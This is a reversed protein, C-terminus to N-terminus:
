PGQNVRIMGLPYWGDEGRGEIALRVAPQLTTPDLIGVSLQYDGASLDGPAFVPDEFVADGPLWKRLDADTRIVTFHDPSSLRFALVFPRYIPAVGENVWWTKLHLAEGARIQDQWEARRLAFRYGMKRQFDDFETKWTKPIASSKVNVTSVHWRLAEGLIYRVGWGARFWSEPVGCTELSVPATRWVDQIGTEAIEEPYQDLMESEPKKMDGLCDLRWGAGHSTGYVLADPQDFNMLLPTKRFAKLYVDILKKQVPFEPMYDSWGEGWYGVTSIDVSDLDPHGDYRRGAETVLASWYKFYLPDSFDPQWINADKASASNAHRAGSERYWKPLPHDPDYPMLRIALRQGHRRAEALALDIIEWRIKGQEPELTAWHWRCYAVSSQPFDVSEAPSRLKDVPGEESWKVGSNLADGNYRQFTQIGMGPNVLIEQTEVPRVVTTAEQAWCAGGFAFSCFVLAGLLIGAIRRSSQGVLSFVSM